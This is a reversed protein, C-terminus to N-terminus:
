INGGDAFSYYQDYTLIVHDLVDIDLLKGGDKIKRTMSLDAESPKTNGSPHNHSLIIHSAGAMLAGSFIMKADAVTGSIGGSSIKQFGIIRNNRNLHLVVFEERYEILDPDFVNARLYDAVEKSQTMKHDTVFQGTGRYVPKLEKVEKRM